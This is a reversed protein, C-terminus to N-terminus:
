TTTLSWFILGDLDESVRLRLQVLIEESDRGEIIADILMINRVM